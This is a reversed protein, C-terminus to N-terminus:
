AQTGLNSRSGGDLMASTGLCICIAESLDHWVSIVMYSPLIDNILM